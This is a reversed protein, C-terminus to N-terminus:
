CCLLTLELNNGSSGSEHEGNFAHLPSTTHISCMLTIFSGFSWIRLLSVIHDLFLFIPLSVHGQLLCVLKTGTAGHTLFQMKNHAIHKFGLITSHIIISKVFIVYIMGKGVIDCLLAENTYSYFFFKNTFNQWFTL